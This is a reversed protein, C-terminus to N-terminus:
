GQFCVTQQDNPLNVSQRIRTSLVSQNMNRETQKPNKKQMQIAQFELNSPRPNGAGFCYDVLVVHLWDDQVRAQCDDVGRVHVQEHREALLGAM